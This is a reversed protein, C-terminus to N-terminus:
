KAKDFCKGNLDFRFRTCSLGAVYRIQYMVFRTCSSDSVCRIQSVVFWSLDPICRVLSVGFGLCLGSPGIPFFVSRACPPAPIHLCSGPQKHILFVCVCECSFYVDPFCFLNIHLIYSINAEHLGCISCSFWQRQSPCGYGTCQHSSVSYVIVVIIAIVVAFAVSLPVVNLVVVM